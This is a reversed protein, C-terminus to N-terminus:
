KGGVFRKKTDSPTEGYTKLYYRCFYGVNDFGSAYAAESVTFGGDTLLEQARKIRLDNRYKVPSIGFCKLFHRRFSNVSFHSAAAFTSIPLNELYTEELMRVGELIRAFDDDSSVFSSSRSILGFLRYLLEKKRMYSSTDRSKECLEFSTMIKEIRKSEDDRAVLRFGDFIITPDGNEKITDFNILVFSNEPAEYEMYYKMGRPIFLLEGERVTTSYGLTDCFSAEGFRLFLLGNKPRGKLHDVRRKAARTGSLVRVNCFCVDNLLRNEVSM